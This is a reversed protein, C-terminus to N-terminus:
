GGDGIRLGPHLKEALMRAAQGTRPGFGLMLLGNMAILRRNKGAPTAAIETRALLKDVGGLAELSRETVLIVDPALAVMGELPIQKYKEFGAAANIGGALGIITDASTKAGGAMPSSRGISLLFLVRPKKEIGAVAKAVVALDRRMAAEIAKGDAERGVAKAVVALKEFAADLTKEKPAIVLPVGAGSIQDLVAPPGADGDAIILSPNMAIIPEAALARLYGVNPKKTAAPPYFSTTDVAVIRDQLGLVYLIETVSGGVSVIREIKSPADAAGSPSPAGTVAAALVVLAPFLRM